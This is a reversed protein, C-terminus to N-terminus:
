AAQQAPIRETVDILVFAIDDLQPTQTLAAQLERALDRYADDGSRGLTRRLMRAVGAYGLQRGGALVLEHLGDSFVFLRDGPTVALRAEGVELAPTGLPLGRAVLQEVRGDQRLVLAAPAGASWLRVEGARPDVELAGLTMHHAGACIDSVNENLAAMVTRLDGRRTAEPLARYAAAIGATVMAAGVGHGTVDGLLIRVRDDAAPEYWWWDGGCQTAPAYFGRLALGPGAFADQRPLFLRQVTGTVALDRELAVAASRAADREANITSIHDGLAFSLLVVELASGIRQINSFFVNAPLLGFAVFAYLITGVLVTGFALAYFRAPRYRKRLVVVGVVAAFVCCLIALVTAIRIAVAYPGLLALLVSGTNGLIFATLVRHTRPLHRRTDLFDQTFRLTPQVLLAITLPTFVNAAGPHEPFLYRGATGDLGMQTATFVFVYAVYWFYARTRISLFLFFNYIGLALMLGYYAGHVFLTDTEHQRLRDPTMLDFAVQMSSDTQVRLYAVRAAHAPVDVRIMVLHSDFPRQSYPLRDGNVSRTYGGGPQAVYAEVRDLLAYRFVLMRVADAPGPNDLHLRLWIADGTFGFNPNPEAALRWRADPLAAVEDITLRAGHDRVLEFRGSSGLQAVGPTLTITPPAAAAPRVALVAALVCGLALVITRSSM